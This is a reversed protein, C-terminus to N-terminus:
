FIHQTSLLSSFTGSKNLHNVFRLEEFQPNDSATINFTIHSDTEEIDSFDWTLSPLAVNSKGNKQCSGIRTLIQKSNIIGSLPVCEYLQSFQVSYVDSSNDKNYFTYKPVNENGTVDVVFNETEVHINNDAAIAICIISFLLLLVRM